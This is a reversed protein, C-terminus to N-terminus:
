TRRSSSAGSISAWRPPSAKHWFRRPRARRGELLVHGGAFLAILLHDVIGDQGIVAKAVEGRIALALARVQELTM